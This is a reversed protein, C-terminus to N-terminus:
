IKCSYTKECLQLTKFKGKKMLLGLNEHQPLQGGLQLPRTRLGRVPARGAPLTLGQVDTAKEVCTGRWSVPLRGPEEPRGQVGADSSNCKPAM